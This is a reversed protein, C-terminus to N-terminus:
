VCVAASRLMRPDSCTSGASPCTQELLDLEKAAVAPNQALLGLQERDHAPQRHHDPLVDNRAAVIGQHVAEIGPLIWSSAPALQARVDPTTNFRHGRM